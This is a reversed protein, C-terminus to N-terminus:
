ISIKCGGGPNTSFVTETYITAKNQLKSFLLHSKLFKGDGTIAFTVTFRKHSSGGKRILVERSGKEIITSRPETEFYRPVQDMNIVNKKKINHQAILSHVEQIFRRCIDDAGDPLSRTSTERRSVLNHRVKFRSVWGPSAIFEVSEEVIEDVKMMNFINLAKRSIYLDKVRLGKRNKEKIWLLLEKELENANFLPKRGGGALRRVKRTEISQTNLAEILKDKDKIWGRITDKSIGFQKALAPVGKGPVGKEYGRIMDLKQKITYSKRKDSMYHFFFSPSSQFYDHPQDRCFKNLEM